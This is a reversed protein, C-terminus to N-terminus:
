TTEALELTHPLRPLAAFLSYRTLAPRSHLTCHLGHTLLQASTVIRPHEPVLPSNTAHQGGPTHCNCIPSPPCTRASSRVPLIASHAAVRYVPRSDPGRLPASSQQCLSSFLVLKEYRASVHIEHREHRLAQGLWRLAQWALPGGVIVALDARWAGATQDQDM